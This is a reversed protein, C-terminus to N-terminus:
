LLILFPAPFLAAHASFFTINYIITAMGPSEAKLSNEKEKM